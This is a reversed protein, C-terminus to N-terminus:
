SSAYQELAAWWFEEPWQPPDDGIRILASLSFISLSTVPLLRFMALEPVNDSIAQSVREYASQATVAWTGNTSSDVWCGLGVAAINRDLSENILENYYGQWQSLSAGNYTEMDMLRDVSPALTAFDAIMPSWTAVDVTLRVGITHLSAKLASLWGAYAVADASTTPTSVPELDMNIGSVNAARAISTLAAVSV